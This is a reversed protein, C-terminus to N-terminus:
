RRFRTETHEFIRIGPINRAGDKVAQRIRAECPMLYEHPIAADDQIEFRWETHQYSTGEATRVPGSAKPVAPAEIKVPEVHAAKAEADLKAQLEEAQRRAEEEAKRRELEKRQQYAGIKRKLGYEIGVLKESFSKALANVSRVFEGPDAVFRKRADEIAKGLKKAQLGMEIARTNEEDSTIDVAAAQEQMADIKAMYPALAAKVPAMDYPNVPTPAPAPMEFVDPAVPPMGPTPERLAAGFDIAAM